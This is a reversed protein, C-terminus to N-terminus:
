QGRVPPAAREEDFSGEKMKMRAARRRGLGRGGSGEGRERRAELGLRELRGANNLVREEEEVEEEKM